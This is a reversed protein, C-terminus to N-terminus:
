AADTHSDSNEMYQELDDVMYLYNETQDATYDDNRSCYDVIWNDLDIDNEFSYAVVATLSPKNEAELLKGGCNSKEILSDLVETYQSIDEMTTCPSVNKQVFSLIKGLNGPEEEPEPKPEPENPEPIGLYELMLTELLDLKEVIVNRDKTSRGKDIECFVKGDVERDCLGDKFVNLFDAFKGDDLGLGVFRHFVTFWLFSDKANFLPYVDDTIISELRGICDELVDFEEPSANENLFAGIQGSKKWDDLHYMCMVTELLIREVTGNKRESKTYRAEIFFKRKLIERIRRAYHDCFTFAKQSVNMGKSFNFRRVLRSIQQMSYNEHIVTELQFEDFAKKLEEPMREYTKRRIDFERDEWIFDGNGDILINGDADRAKARYKIVPEEVNPSIKFNGYRFMMLTTSRQLGDIIWSQSNEEQGLIIPPVYEGNLVSVILESAMSNNWQGSLRQVDQDQRIDQDKLKKLYMELTYVQKRPKAM